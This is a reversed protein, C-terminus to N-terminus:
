NFIGNILKLKKERTWGKVQIERKRAESKNPFPQSVYVLKFPGQQVAFRSGNGSNHEALREKSDTTIGVYFRGTRAQAIYLYWPRNPGEIKSMIAEVEKLQEAYIAGSLIM